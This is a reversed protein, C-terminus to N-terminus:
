RNGIGNNDTIGPVDLIPSTVIPIGNVYVDNKPNSFLHNLDDPDKLTYLVSSVTGGEIHFKGLQFIGRSDRYRLWFIGSGRPEFAGTDKKLLGQLRVSPGLYKQLTREISRAEPAGVLLQRVKFFEPDFSRLRTESERRMTYGTAASDAYAPPSLLSTLLLTLALM